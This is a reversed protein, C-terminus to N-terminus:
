SAQNRKKKFILCGAKEQVSDFSVDKWGGGGVEGAVRM